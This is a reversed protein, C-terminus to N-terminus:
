PWCCFSGVMISIRALCLTKEAIQKFVRATIEETNYHVSRTSEPIYVIRPMLERLIGPLLQVSNKAPNVFLQIHQLLIVRNLDM